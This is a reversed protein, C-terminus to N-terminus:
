NLSKTNQIGLENLYEEFVPMFTNEDIDYKRNMNEFNFTIDAYFENFVEVAEDYSMGAHLHTKFYFDAVYDYVPQFDFYDVEMYPTYRLSAQADIRAVIEYAYNTDGMYKDMQEILYNVGHNFYDEYSYLGADILCNVIIRYYSSIMPYFTAKNDMGQLEYSINTVIAEDAYAGMKYFDYFHTRTKIGDIECHTMRAAHILEHTLIIYDDSGRSLDLNELVCIRNEAKIYCAASDTSLTESDIEAQTMEDIVLTKINHHLVALNCNPYLTRLDKALNFIFDKYTQSINPNQALAKSIDDLTVDQYGFLQEYGSADSARELKVLDYNQYDNAYRFDYQDDAPALYGLYESIQKETLVDPVGSGNYRNRYDDKDGSNTNADQTITINSDFTPKSTNNDNFKVFNNSVCGTLLAINLAVIVGGILVKPKFGYFKGERKIYSVDNIDVFLSTLEFLEELKPYRYNNNEDIRLFAYRNFSDRFMQYTQGKYGFKLIKRFRYQMDDGIIIIDIIELFSLVVNM